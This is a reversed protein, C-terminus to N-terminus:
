PPKILLSNRMLKKWKTRMLIWYPKTLFTRSARISSIWSIQARTSFCDHTKSGQYNQVQPSWPCLFTKILSCFQNMLLWKWKRNKELCKKEARLQRKYQSSLKRYIKPLKKKLLFKSRRLWIIEILFMRKSWQM